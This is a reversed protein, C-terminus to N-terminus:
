LALATLTHYDAMRQRGSLATSQVNWRQAYVGADAAALGGSASATPIACCGDVPRFLGETANITSQPLRNMSSGPVHRIRNIEVAANTGAAPSCQSHSDTPQSRLLTHGAMCEPLSCWSVEGDAIEAGQRPRRRAAPPM